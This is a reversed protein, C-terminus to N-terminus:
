SVQAIKTFSQHFRPPVKRLVKQCSLVSGGWFVLSAVFSPCDQYFKLLVKKAARARIQGLFGSVMFRPCDQYFKPPVKTPGEASGKPLGVRIHGSVPSAVFSTCDQHSKPPVKTSGEASGKPLEVHM